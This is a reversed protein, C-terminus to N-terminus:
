SYYIQFDKPNDIAIKMRCPYFKTPNDLEKQLDNIDTALTDGKFFKFWMTKETKNVNGQLDFRQIKILEYIVETKTIREALFEAFLSLIFSRYKKYNRM